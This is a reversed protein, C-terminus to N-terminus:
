LIRIIAKVIVPNIYAEVIVGALFMIIVFVMKARNWQSEPFCFWYTFLIGYVLGYFIAQPFMGAVCFLIGKIGLQLVALVSFMGALFGILGLCLSVFMKKWKMCSLICIVGLLLVREKIVYWLYKETIVETQLYRQLNSRLFLETTVASNKLIVNEYIIGLLFGVVLFIMLLQNKNKYARM